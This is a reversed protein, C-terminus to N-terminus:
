NLSAKYIMAIKVMGEETSINISHFLAIIGIYTIMNDKTNNM